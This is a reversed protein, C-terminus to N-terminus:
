GSCGFRRSAGSMRWGTSARGRWPGRGQSSSRWSKPTPLACGTWCTSAWSRTRARTWQGLSRLSARTPSSSVCRILGRILESWRAQAQAAEGQAASAAAELTGFRAAVAEAAVACALLLLAFMCFLVLFYGVPAYFGPFPQTTTGHAGGFLAVLQAATDDLSALYWRLEPAETLAVVAVVAISFLATLYPQWRTLFSSGILPLVFGLLFLPNQLGGAQQWVFGVILVGLLHIAVLSRRLWGDALGSGAAAAFVLHIAGLGLLGGAVAAFNIDLAGAFWTLATVFLLSLLTLLWINDLLRLRLDDHREAAETSSMSPTRAGQPFPGDAPQQVESTLCHDRPPSDRLPDLAFSTTEGAHSGFLQNWASRLLRGTLSAANM